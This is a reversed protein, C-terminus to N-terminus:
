STKRWITNPGSRWFRWFIWTSWNEYKAVYWKRDIAWLRLPLLFFPLFPVFPVSYHVLFPLVKNCDHGTRSKNPMCRLLINVAVKIEICCNATLYLSTNCFCVLFFTFWYFVPTKKIRNYQLSVQLSCVTWIVYLQELLLGSIQSM